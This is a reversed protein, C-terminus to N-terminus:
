GFVGAIVAPLASLGLMIAVYLVTVVLAGGRSVGLGRRLAIYVLVVHWANFLDIQQLVGFLPNRSDAQIDGSAILFSLGQYQLLAKHMYVWLAMVLNRVAEPIFLWPTVAWVASYTADGGALLIGFYLIGSVLLWILAQVVVGTLGGSVIIFVPSVFRQAQQAVTEAQDPPLTALQAQLQKQALAATYPAAVVLYIILSALVIFAPLLWVTGQRRTIEAFARGPSAIVDLLLQWVSTRSSSGNTMEPESALAGPMDASPEGNSTDM